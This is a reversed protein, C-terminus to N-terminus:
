ADSGTWSTASATSTSTSFSLKIGASGRISSFFTHGQRDLVHFQLSFSSPVKVAPLVFGTESTRQTALPSGTSHFQFVTMEKASRPTASPQITSLRTKSAKQSSLFVHTGFM